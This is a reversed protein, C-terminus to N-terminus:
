EITSIDVIEWGPLIQGSVDLPPEINIPQNFDYYKQIYDTDIRGVNSDPGHISQKIQRLIYDDEGIWLDVQHSIERNQAVMDEMEEESPPDKGMQEHYETVSRKLEAIQKEIDMRGQYHFCNVGEIREQPLTQIDTLQDFLELSMEQNLMTSFSRTLSFIVTDSASRDKVYVKNGIVTYERVTSGETMKVHYSDPSVFESSFDVQFTNENYAGTQSISMRFSKIDLAAGAARDAATQPDPIANWPQFIVLIVALIILLVTIVSALKWQSAILRM